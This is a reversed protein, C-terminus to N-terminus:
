RPSPEFRTAFQGHGAVVQERERQRTGWEQGVATQYLVQLKTQENQLMGQEANIRAQLELIGKQDTASPIADILQQISAFRGSANSLEDQSLAQLLAVSQRATNIQAREDNSLSALQQASLVANAQLSGQMDASLAAYGGASGQMLGSLQSWQTPLYNRVTGNLLSQMGRSGTISQYQAQAQAVQARAAELQQALTQLQQVLQAVSAVDIVAFQARVTASALMMAPISLMLLRNRKMSM